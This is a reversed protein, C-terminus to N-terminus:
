KCRDVIPLIFFVWVGMTLRILQFSVEVSTYVNKACKM